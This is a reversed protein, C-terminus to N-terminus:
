YQPQGQADGEPPLTRTDFIRRQEPTLVAYFGKLAQSQRQLDALEQRMEAEVLDMRHPADLTPFLTSASRRREQARDPVDSQSRYQQWATEQSPALHLALHLM